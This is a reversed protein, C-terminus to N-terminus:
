RGLLRLALPWLHSGFIVIGVGVAIIASLLVAGAAVDKAVRALPDYERTALDVTAEVVTNIMEAVLVGASTLLIVALEVPTLRLVLSLVLAGVAFALHIRMNRQTRVVYVIGNWAYVFSRLFTARAPRLPAIPKQEAVTRV